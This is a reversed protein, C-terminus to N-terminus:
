KEFDNYLKQNCSSNRYSCSICSVKFYPFASKEVKKALFRVVNAYDSKKYLLYGLQSYRATYTYM